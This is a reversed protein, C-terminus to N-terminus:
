KKASLIITKSWRRNKPYLMYLNGYSDFAVYQDHHPLYNIFLARGKTKPRILPSAITDELLLDPLSYIEVTSKFGKEIILKNKSINHFLINNTGTTIERFTNKTQLILKGGKTIFASQSDADLAVANTVSYDHSITKQPWAVDSKFYLLNKDGFLLIKDPASTALVGGLSKTTFDFPQNFDDDPFLQMKTNDSHKICLGKDKVYSIDSLSCQLNEQVSRSKLSYKSLASKQKLKTQEETYFYINDGSGFVLKSIKKDNFTHVDVTEWTYTNVLVIRSGFPGMQSGFLEVFAIVSKDHSLKVQPLMLKGTGYFYWKPRWVTIKSNKQLRQAMCDAPTPQVALPDIVPPKGGGGKIELINDDTFKVKPLEEPADGSNDITFRFKSTHEEKTSERIAPTSKKVVPQVIHPKTEVVPPQQEDGCGAMLFLM